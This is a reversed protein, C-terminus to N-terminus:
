VRRGGLSPQTLARTRERNRLETLFENPNNAQVTIPGTFNSSRDIQYNYYSNGSIAPQAHAVLGRKADLGGSTKMMLGTLFDAGYENLPLVMEPGREGVTINHAGDTFIGGQGYWNHNQWFRWAGAPDKYRNKIYRMGYISQLWPDATKHGGVGAWTSDLFQFMGYATSTPNQAHNNFSSEHMVLQSLANWQDGWGFRKAAARVTQRNDLDGGPAVGVDGGRATTPAGYKDLLEHYKRRALRNIVKSIDGRALFNVGQMNTADKEARPYYDKLIEKLTIRREPSGGGGGGVGGYGFDGKEGLHYVQVFGSDRYGRANPGVIPGEGGRSEVNLGDLTGAMHGVGSGGYNSTSGITFQGPGKVFGPWPFTSTAGLRFNPNKYGRLVNTIAAMFGSCDYYTPGHGGMVYQDGPAMKSRAFDKARQIASASLVGGAAYEMAVVNASDGLVGEGQHREQKPRGGRRAARNMEEVARPGGVARTWEPVMVAEGGSLNIRVGTTKSEFRHGDVGPTFGPLVSGSASNIQPGPKPTDGPGTTDRSDNVNDFNGGRSKWKPAQYKFGFIDSLTEMLDIAYPSTSNKLDRFEAIVTQAQERAHGSLNKTSRRLIQAFNGDITDAARALDESARTMTKEYQDAMRDMSIEFDEDQRRLSRRFDEDQRDLSRHFDQRGQRMNRDFDEQARTRQLRYNRRFEQWETSSEDKVLAGAAKLRKSVSENFQKILKPDEAVDSVLRALQQANKPDTLGLQQIANDSMGMNRLRDLDHSQGQMAELQDQANFLLWDASATRQVAIRQYMNYMQQAQAEIMMQVQHHHDEEQRHRQLNFEYNARRQQRAFDDEARSRMLQYDFEARNRQRDFDDQAYERQLNYDEEARDRSVNFERQQYLLQKFYNYQEQVQQAYAAQAQKRADEGGPGVNTAMEGKFLSTQAGFQDTRTMYPMRFALSQQLQGQAGAMLDAALQPDGGAEAVLDGLMKYQKGPDMTAGRVRHSIDEIARVSANPDMSGETLAYKVSQLGLIGGAGFVKTTAKEIAEAASQQESGEEMPKPNVIADYIARYADEGKLDEDLGYQGLATKLQEDDLAYNGTQEDGMVTQKIFENLTGPRASENYAQDHELDVGLLREALGERLVGTTEITSHYDGPQSSAVDFAKVLDKTTEATFRMSEEAGKTAALYNAQDDIAGFAADFKKSALSSSYTHTLWDMKGKTGPTAIEGALQTIDLDEPRNNDALYNLTSQAAGVGFKATLDLAAQHIAQPNQGLQGWQAELGARAEALSGANKIRDNTYKYGSSTALQRDQPSVQLAASMGINKPTTSILEEAVPAIGPMNNAQYYANSFGSMDTKQYEQDGTAGKYMSYLAFGGLASAMLPNGGVLGYASKALGGTFKAAGGATAMMMMTANSLGRGFASFGRSATMAQRELNGMAKAANSSAMVERDVQAVKDAGSTLGSLRSKNLQDMRQNMKQADDYMVIRGQKDMFADGGKLLGQSAFQLRAAANIGGINRDIFRGGADIGRGLTRGAAGFSGGMTPSSFMRFRRTVDSYGGSGEVGPIRMAGPAYFFQGGMRAMWGGGQLARGVMQNSFTPAGPAVNGARSMFATQAGANYFMRNSWSGRPGAIQEGQTGLPVRGEGVGPRVGTAMMEARMAPTMARRTELFGKVPASGLFMSATAFTALAKSAMLVAGGLAMFPAAIGAILAAMKGLPSDVLMRVATSMKDVAWLFIGASKAFNGGFSEATKMLESRVEALKHTLTDLAAESGRGLAKPDASRAANIESAMGGQQAMATVTRVTQMGDYGMRNLTSIAQPGQRNIAEFISNIQETGGLEKFQQTTMGVLNAYTNLQPSGSQAAYAIDSVMRTWVNSARYGDQGAKMFANATGMIDTQTMNLLRGVPAINQSFELISSASAGSRQSLTFLQNNYKEVDRQQTGMTRQLQFMGAALNASSEGTAAGLKVFTDTLKSASATQDSLTRVTQVLQAAETTALGYAGRLRNVEEVSNAFMKQQSEHTKTLAAAQVNLSSVQKEFAAYAVTTSVVLAHDAASIGLMKRGASKTLNGVKASLTDVTAAFQSTQAASQQM